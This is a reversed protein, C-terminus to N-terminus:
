SSAVWFLLFAFISRLYYEIHASWFDLIGIALVNTGMTEEVKWLVLTFIKNISCQRALPMDAFM